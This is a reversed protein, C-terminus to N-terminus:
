KLKFSNLIISGVQSSLPANSNNRNEIIQKAFRRLNSPFRAQRLGLHRRHQQDSVFDDVAIWVNKFAEEKTTRPHTHTPTNTNKRSVGVGKRSKTVFVGANETSTRVFVYLFVNVIFFHKICGQRNKENTNLLQLYEKEIRVAVGVKNSSVNVLDRRHFQGSSDVCAATEKCIQLDPTRISMADKAGDIAAVAGTEGKFRGNLINVYNGISFYKRLENAKFSIEDNLAEHQQFLKSQIVM